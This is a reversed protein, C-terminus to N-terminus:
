QPLKVGYREPWDEEYPLSFVLQVQEARDFDDSRLVKLGEQIRQWRPDDGVGGGARDMRDFSAALSLISARMELFERDLVDVSGQPYSM